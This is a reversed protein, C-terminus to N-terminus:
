KRGTMNIHSFYVISFLCTLMISLFFNLHIRIRLSNYQKYVLFIVSGIFTLLLSFSYGALYLYIERQRQTAGPTLCKDYNVLESEYLIGSSNKTHTYWTGNPTCEKSAYERTCESPLDSELYLMDPCQSLETTGPM